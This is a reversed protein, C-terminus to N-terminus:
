IKWNSLPPFTGASNLGRCLEYSLVPRGTVQTAANLAEMIMGPLLMPECFVM